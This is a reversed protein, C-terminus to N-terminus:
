NLQIKVLIQLKNQNIYFILQELSPLINSLDEFNNIKDIIENSLNIKGYESYLQNLGSIWYEDSIIDCYIIDGSKLYESICGTKPLYTRKENYVKFLNEVRLGSINKFDSISKFADKIQSNLEKFDVQSKTMIVIKKDPYNTPKIYIELQTITLIESDPINYM